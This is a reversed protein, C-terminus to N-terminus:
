GRPWSVSQGLALGVTMAALVSLSSAVLSPDAFLELMLLIACGSGASAYLSDRGRALARRFLVASLVVGIALIVALGSRGLELSIEAAASPPALVRADQIGRYAPLLAAYTGAGTGLPGADALMRGALAAQAPMAGTAARVALDGSGKNFGSFIAVVAVILIIGAVVGKEWGHSPVHRLFAVLFIPILGCLGAVLILRPTWLAMALCVAFVACGACFEAVVGGAIGSGARRLLYQDLASVILSASLLLGLNGIAAFTTELASLDAAEASRWGSAAVVISAIIIVGTVAVLVHLLQHARRRDIAVCLASLVIGLVTLYRLLARLTLGPDASIKGDLPSGLAAAASQWIPHALHPVPLLQIVMWIAPILALPLLARTTRWVHTAEAPRLAFSCIGLLLAAGLTLCLSASATDFALLVPAAAALLSLLVLAGSM